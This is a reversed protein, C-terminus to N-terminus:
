ETEAEEGVAMELAEIRAQHVKELLFAKLEEEISDSMYALLKDYARTKKFEEVIEKDKEM